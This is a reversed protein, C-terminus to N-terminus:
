MLYMAEGGGDIIMMVIMEYVSRDGFGVSHRILEAEIALRDNNCTSSSSQSLCVGEEKCSTAGVDDHVVQADRVLALATRRLYVM